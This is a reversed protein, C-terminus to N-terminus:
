FDVTLTQEIVFGAKALQEKVMDIPHYHFYTKDGTSSTKYGSEEYNGAVFSTYLIGNSYLLQGCDEFFRSCDEQSLFPLCFGGIIGNFQEGTQGIARADMVEFRATPNHGRALEIMAPAFDTGLWKWQPQQQLMYHCINGPGCGLELVAADPTDMLRCFLDYTDNYVDLHMFKEEYLKAVKNWTSATQEYKDM